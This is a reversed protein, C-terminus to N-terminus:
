TQLHADTIRLIIARGFIEMSQYESGTFIFLNDQIIHTPHGRLLWLSATSPFDSVQSAHSSNSMDNSAQVRLPGM